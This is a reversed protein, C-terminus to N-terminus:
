LSRKAFLAKRSASLKAKTEDSMKRGLNANRCKEKAEDSHTRGRSANSIKAKAEDSHQRGTWVGNARHTASMKARTEDSHRSGLKRARCGEKYEESRPPLKKGLMSARMKAKTEESHPVGRRTRAIKATNFNPQWEDLYRQEVKDLLDVACEEIIEFLFAESGYKTWCAQLHPAHHTGANLRSRHLTWRKNLDAAQGVYTRGTDIHVIRYVGSKM